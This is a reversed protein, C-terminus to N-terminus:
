LSVLLSTCRQVNSCLWDTVEHYLLLKCFHSHLPKKNTLLHFLILSFRSLQLCKSLQYNLIPLQLEKITVQSWLPWLPQRLLYKFTFQNFWTTYLSWLHALSPTLYRAIEPLTRKICKLTKKMLSSNQLLFFPRLLRRVRLKQNVIFFCLTKSICPVM